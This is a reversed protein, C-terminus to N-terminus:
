TSTWRTPDVTTVGATAPLCPQNLALITALAELAGSAGISHGHLSKTATVPIKAARAGFVQHLAEAEVIDNVQTGTGHANVYEVDDPTLNADAIAKRMATAAGAPDPNTIHRADASMGFGVIEAYIPANRAQAAALTELTFM